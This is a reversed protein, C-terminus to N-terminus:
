HHLELCFPSPPHASHADSPTIGVAGLQQVMGRDSFPGGGLNMQGQDHGDPPAKGEKRKEATLIPLQGHGEGQWTLFYPALWGWHWGLFSSTSALAPSFPSANFARRLFLSM